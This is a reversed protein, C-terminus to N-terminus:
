EQDRDYITIGENTIRQLLEQSITSDMKLLDVGCLTPIEEKLDLAWRVWEQDFGKEVEVALDYDSREHSSGRARSGFLVVKKIWTAGRSKTVVFKLPADVVNGVVRRM